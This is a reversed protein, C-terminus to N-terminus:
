HSSNLRTSKRDAAGNLYMKVRRAWAPIGTFTVTTQASLTVATALSLASARGSAGAFPYWTTSSLNYVYSAPSNALLTTVPGVVTQGTNGSVTLATVQQTSQITIVMGDVPSPPMTVTGTALTGAPTLLLTQTGAAFTYSFGTTPTNVAYNQLVGNSGDVKTTM